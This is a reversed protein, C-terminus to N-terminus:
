RACNRLAKAGSTPRRGVEFPQEPSVRVGRHFFAATQFSVGFETLKTIM